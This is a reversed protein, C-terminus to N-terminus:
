KKLPRYGVGDTEIFRYKVLDYFALGPLTILSAPVFVTRSKGAEIRYAAKFEDYDEMLNSWYKPDSAM